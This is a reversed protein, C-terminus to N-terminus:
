PSSGSPWRWTCGRDASVVPSRRPGDAARGRDRGRRGARLLWPPRLGCLDHRGSGAHRARRVPLRGPPRRLGARRPRRRRPRHPGRDHRPHAVHRGDDGLPRGRRPVLARRGPHRDDRREAPGRGVLAVAVVFLLRGPLDGLDIRLGLVDDMARRFIPDASAFLVAFILVLPVALLLGRGVAGLWVPARRPGGGRPPRARGIARGMGALMGELAWAGMALVVSASRRTVALGSFAAMSAGTFVAAGLM